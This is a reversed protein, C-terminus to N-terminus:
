WYRLDSYSSLLLVLLLPSPNSIALPVCIAPVLAFLSVYVVLNVIFASVPLTPIPVIEGIVDKVRPVPVVPTLKLDLLVDKLEPFIATTLGYSNPLPM